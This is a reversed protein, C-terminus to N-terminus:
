FGQADSMPTYLLAAATFITHCNRLFILCLIIMHDLSEAEPYIGFFQTCSSLYINMCKHKVAANIKIALPLLLKLTWQCILPYVFHPLHICHFIIWGQFLFSITICVVAHIFRSSRISSELQIIRSSM